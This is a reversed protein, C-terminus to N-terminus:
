KCECVIQRHHSDYASKRSGAGFKGQNVGPNVNGKEM